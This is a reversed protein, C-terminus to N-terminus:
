PKDTILALIALATTYNGNHQAIRAATMLAEARATRAVLGDHSELWECRDEVAPYNM